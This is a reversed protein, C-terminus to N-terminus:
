LHMKREGAHPVIRSLTRKLESCLNGSSFLRIHLFDSNQGEPEQSYWSSEISLLMYEDRSAIWRYIIFPTNKYINLAKPLTQCSPGKWM